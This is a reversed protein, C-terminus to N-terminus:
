PQQSRRTLLLLDGQVPLIRSLNPENSPMVGYSPEKPIQRHQPSQNEFPSSGSIFLNCRHGTRCRFRTRKKTRTRRKWWAPRAQHNRYQTLMSPSKVVSRTAELATLGRQCRHSLSQRTPGPEPRPHGAGRHNIRIAGVDRNRQIGRSYAM